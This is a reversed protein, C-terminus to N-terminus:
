FMHVHVYMYMCFINYNNHILVRVKKSIEQNGWICVHVHVHVYVILM